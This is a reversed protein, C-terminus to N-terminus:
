NCCIVQTTIYDNLGNLLLHVLVLSKWHSLFTFESVRNFAKEGDVFFTVSVDEDNGAQLMLHLLRRLNDPSIWMFGVQDPHIRKPSVVM